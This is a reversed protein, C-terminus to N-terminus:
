TCARSYLYSRGSKGTRKVAGIYYLVNLAAQSGPLSLGSANKFDKSTFFSDLSAPILRQYDKIGAIYIEDTLSIPLRDCRTSGKKRDKSWGDLYRYEELNIIMIKLSLGPETLYNKIKYLEPFISYCTGVKPSKRPPTIEGTEPNVWRLWKIGPIPYVITVTYDSLFAALKRRLKNFDRTQIEIIHNGDCIDAVFGAVKIEHNISDPSLYSKLVSHITKEGLTGIGNLGTCTGMVEDCAKKFQKEDM